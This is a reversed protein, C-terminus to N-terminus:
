YGGFGDRPKAIPRLLGYPILLTFAVAVKLAVDLVLASIFPTGQQYSMGWFLLPLAVAGALGGFLPARWWPRGRMSDFLIISILHAGALAGLYRWSASLDPATGLQPLYQTVWSWGFLIVLGMLTWSLAIQLLAYSPGYMRNTLMVVFFALLIVLHSLTLWGSPALGAQGLFAQNDFLIIAYSRAGYALAYAGILVLVPLMLRLTAGLVGKAPKRAAM